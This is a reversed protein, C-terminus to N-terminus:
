SSSTVWDADMDKDDQAEPSSPLDMHSGDHGGSLEANAGFSQQSSLSDDAAM